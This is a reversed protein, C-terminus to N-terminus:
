RFDRVEWSVQDAVAEPALKGISSEAIGWLALWPTHIPKDADSGDLQVVRITSIIVCVIALAFLSLLSFKRGRAMQLGRILQIPLLM